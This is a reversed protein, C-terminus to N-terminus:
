RGLGSVRQIDANASIWGARGIVLHPQLEGEGRARLREITSTSLSLRKALWSTPQLTNSTM